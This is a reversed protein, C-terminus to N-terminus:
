STWTQVKAAVITLRQFRETGSLLYSDTQTRGEGGWSVSAERRPGGSRGVMRAVLSHVGAVVLPGPDM